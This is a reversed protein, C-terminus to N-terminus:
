DDIDEAPDSTRSSSSSSDDAIMSLTSELQRIEHDERCLEEKLWRAARRQSHIRFNVQRIAQMCQEQEEAIRFTVQYARRPVSIGMQMGEFLTLRSRHLQINTLSRQETLEALAATLPTLSGVVTM